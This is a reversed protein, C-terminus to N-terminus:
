KQLMSFSFIAIEIEDGEEGESSFWYYDTDNPYIYPIQISCLKSKLFVEALNELSLDALGLREVLDLYARNEKAADYIGLQLFSEVKHDDNVANSIVLAFDLNSHPKSSLMTGGYTYLNMIKM